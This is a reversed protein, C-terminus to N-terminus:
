FEFLGDLFIRHCFNSTSIGEEVMIAVVPKLLGDEFVSFIQLSNTLSVSCLYAM